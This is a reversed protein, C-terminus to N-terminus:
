VLRGLAQFPQQPAREEALSRAALMTVRKARTRLPLSAHGRAGADFHTTVVFRIQGVMVGLYAVTQRWSRPHCRRLRRRELIATTVVLMRGRLDFPAPERTVRETLRQGPWPVESTEMKTCTTEV